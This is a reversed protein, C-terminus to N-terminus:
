IWCSALPLWSKLEDFRNHDVVPCSVLLVLGVLSCHLLEAVKPKWAQFSQMDFYRSLVLKQHYWSAVLCLQHRYWWQTLGSVGTFYLRNIRNLVIKLILHLRCVLKCQTLSLFSVLCEFGMTLWSEELVVLILSLWFCMSFSNEFIFLMLSICNGRFYICTQSKWVLVSVVDPAYTVNLHQGSHTWSSNTSKLEVVSTVDAIKDEATENVTGSLNATVDHSTSSTHYPRCLGLFWDLLSHRHVPESTGVEDDYSKLTRSRVSFCCM